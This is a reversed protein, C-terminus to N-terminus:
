EIKKKEQEAVERKEKKEKEVAEQTPRERAQIDMGDKPCPRETRGVPNLCYSFVWGSKGAHEGNDIRIESDGILLYPPADSPNGPLKKRIRLKIGTVKTGDSVTFVNSMRAIKDQKREYILTDVHQISEFSDAVYIPENPFGAKLVWKTDEGGWFAPQDPVGHKEVSQILTPPGGVKNSSQRRSGTEAM